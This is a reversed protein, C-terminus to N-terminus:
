LIPTPKHRLGSLANGIIALLLVGGGALTYASATENLWLWVWIPGLVVETMSLIALEASPVVKSGLTYLILGAGVQFVGMALAVAIDQVPLAFGYGAWINVGASLIVAFLGGLVVTPMMDELKGWRLAITFVAFGFASVIAALNGVLRGLSAGEWVMIMIGFMAVFMALWTERRVHERLISRSLIAAIFPATAFLFMANAVKTEQIAYIGGSFAVVLALGGIVGAWGAARMTQLTKRRNRVAMVFLLFPILALSRYFLIQWTNAVDIHRIALGITSWCIGAAIVLLIGRTYTLNSISASSGATM